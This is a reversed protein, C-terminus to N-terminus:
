QGDKAGIALELVRVLDLAHNRLTILESRTLRAVKWALSQAMSADSGVSLDRFFCSLVYLM